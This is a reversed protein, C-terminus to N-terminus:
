DQIEKEFFNILRNAKRQLMEESYPYKKSLARRDNLRKFILNKKEEDTLDNWFVLKNSPTQNAKLISKFELIAINDNGLYDIIANKVTERNKKLDSAVMTLTKRQVTIAKYAADIQEETLEEQEEVSTIEKHQKQSQLALEVQTANVTSKAAYRDIINRIKTRGYGPNEESITRISKQEELYSKIIKYEIDTFEEPNPM